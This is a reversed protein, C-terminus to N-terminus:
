LLVAFAARINRLIIAGAPFVAPDDEPTEPDVPPPDTVPPDTEPPDTEPPTPDTDAPETNTTETDAPDTAPPAPETDTGTDSEVTETAVFISTEFSTGETPTDWKLGGLAGDAGRTTEDPPNDTDEPAGATEGGGIDDTVNTEAADNGSTSVPPIHSTGPTTGPTVPSCDDTESGSDVASVTDDWETGADIYADGRGAVASVAIATLAMIVAVAVSVAYSILKDRRM